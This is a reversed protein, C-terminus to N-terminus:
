PLNPTSILIDLRHVLVISERPDSNRMAQILQDRVRAVLLVESICNSSQANFDFARAKALRDFALAFDCLRVEALEDM